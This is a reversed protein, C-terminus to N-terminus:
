TAASQAPRRAAHSIPAPGHTKSLSFATGITDRDPHRGPRLSFRPGRRVPDRLHHCIVGRRREERLSGRGDLDLRVRVVGHRLAVEGTCEQVQDRPRFVSRVADDLAPPGHRRALLLRHLADGGRSLRPAPRHQRVREESPVPATEAKAEVRRRRGPVTKFGKINQRPTFGGGGRARAVKRHLLPAGIRPGAAGVGIRRRRFLM